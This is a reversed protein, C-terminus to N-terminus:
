MGTAVKVNRRIQQGVIMWALCVIAQFGEPLLGALCFTRAGAEELVDSGDGSVEDEGGPAAEHICEDGAIRRGSLIAAGHSMSATCPHPVRRQTRKDSMATQGLIIVLLMGVM